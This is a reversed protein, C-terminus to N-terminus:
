IEFLVERRPIGLEPCGQFRSQSSRGRAGTTGIGGSFSCSHPKEQSSSSQSSPQPQSSAGPAPILGGPPPILEGSSPHAGRFQSSGGQVPILRGAAGAGEPGPDPPGRAFGKGRVWFKGAKRRSSGPAAVARPGDQPGQQGRPSTAARAVRCRENGASTAAKPVVKPVTDHVLIDFCMGTGKEEPAGCSGSRTPTPFFQFQAPLSSRSARCPAPLPAQPCRPHGRAPSRQASPHERRSTGGKSNGRSFRSYPVLAASHSM